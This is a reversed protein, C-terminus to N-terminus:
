LADCKWGRQLYDFIQCKRVALIEFSKFDRVAHPEDSPLTEPVTPDFLDRNRARQRLHALFDESLATVESDDSYLLAARDINM